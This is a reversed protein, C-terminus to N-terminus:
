SALPGGPRSSSNQNIQRAEAVAEAGGRVAARLLALASPEPEPRDAIWLVSADALDPSQGLLGAEAGGEALADLVEDALEATLVFGRAGDPTPPLAGGAEVYAGVALMALDGDGDEMLDLLDQALMLHLNKSM